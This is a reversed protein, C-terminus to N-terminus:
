GDLEGARRALAQFALVALAGQVDGGLENFVRDLVANIQAPLRGLDAVSDAAAVLSQIEGDAACVRDLDPDPMETFPRRPHAARLATLHRHLHGGVFAVAEAIELRCAWIIEPRWRLRGVSDSIRFFADIAGTLSTAAAASLDMLHRKLVGGVSDLAAPLLADLPMAADATSTASLLNDIHEPPWATVDVLTANARQGDSLAMLGCSRGTKAAYEVLVAGVAARAAQEALIEEPTM